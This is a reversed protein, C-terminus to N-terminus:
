NESSVEDFFVIFIALLFLASAIIVLVNNHFIKFIKEPTGRYAVASVFGSNKIEGTLANAFTVCNAYRSKPDKELVRQLCKNVEGPIGGIPEPAEAFVAARLINFEEADFPLHGSLMQYTLVGLAYQDSAPSPYKGRFQEPSLYNPTGDMNAPKISLATMSSRVKSAIGFDLVKVKGNEDVMVNAPKIDRHLIGEGHAYDLAAAIQKVIATVESLEPRGTKWKRRIWQLLNEGHVYEMILFYSGFEDRELFDLSAINPHKLGHVLLFNERVEEMAGTNCALEPPVMKLAYEAQSVQDRCKFVMGMAGSGLKELLEYRNLVVDGIQLEGRERRVRMNPVTNDPAFPENGAEKVAGENGSRPSLTHDVDLNGADTFESESISTSGDEAVYFKVGCECQYKGPACDYMAECVPCKVIM